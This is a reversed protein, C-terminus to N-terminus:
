LSAHVLFVGFLMAFLTSLRLLGDGRGLWWAVLRDLSERGMVLIGFAAFISIGGIIKMVLPYRLDEALWLFLVGIVLRTLVAFWFRGRSPWQGLLGRFKDPSLIGLAGILAILAGLIAILITMHIFM